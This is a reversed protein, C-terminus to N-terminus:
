SSTAHATQEARARQRGADREAERLEDEEKQKLGRGFRRSYVQTFEAGFLFMQASFYLWLLVVVLSGAAGYTAAVGAKALYLGVLFNGLNFLLSTLLGGWIVARWGVRTDPVVRFVVASILAVLFVSSLIQLVQTLFGTPAWAPLLAAGLGTLVARSVFVGLLLPGAAAVLLFAFVRRKLYNKISGKFGEAVFVDVNWIQNLASRLQTTFKSAAFLTLAIGVASAVGGSQSAQQVWADIATAQDPGMTSQLLERVEQRATGEGLVLGAIGVAIIILPALSLLTYFAIGASVLDGRDKSFEELTENVIGWALRGRQRLQITSRRVMRGM